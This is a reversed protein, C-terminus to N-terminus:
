NNNESSLQPSPLGQPQSARRLGVALLCCLQVLGAELSWSCSIGSPEAESSSFEGAVKWSSILSSDRFLPASAEAKEHPCTSFLATRHGERHGVTPLSPALVPFSSGQTRPGGKKERHTGVKGRGQQQGGASGCM